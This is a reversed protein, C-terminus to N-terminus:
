NSLSAKFREVSKCSLNTKLNWKLECQCPLRHNIDTKFSSFNLFNFVKDTSTKLFLM